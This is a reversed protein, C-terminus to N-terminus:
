ALWLDLGSSLCAKLEQMYTRVRYLRALPNEIGIPLALLVLGFHNGLKHAKELPRLNVPVAARIELGDVSEGRELLYSRLAGTVAALLVDNISCGLIRGVTKVHQLPLPEAWAVQKSVGLEGRFGSAPDNPLMALKALEATIDSGRRCISWRM